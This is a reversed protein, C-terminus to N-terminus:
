AVLNLNSALNKSMIVSRYNVKEWQQYQVFAYGRKEYYSILHTAPEATDLAIQLAGHSKAHGEVLEIFHSGIGSRQLDPRVAFQGFYWAKRYHECPHDPKAAYLSITAVMKGNQLAILTTHARDIRDRTTEDNQWTGWMYIEMDALAKYSVRILQTLESISDTLQFERIELNLSNLRMFELLGM